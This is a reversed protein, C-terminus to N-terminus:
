QCRLVDNLYNTDTQKGSSIHKHMALHVLKVMGLCRVKCCCRCICFCHAQCWVVMWYMLKLGAFKSAKTTCMCPTREATSQATAQQPSGSQLVCYGLITHHLCGVGYGACRGSEGCSFELCICYVLEQTQNPLFGKVKGGPYRGLRGYTLHLQGSREQNANMVMQSLM